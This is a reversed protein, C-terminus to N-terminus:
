GLPQMLNAPPSLPFGEPQLFLLHQDLREGRFLLGGRQRIARASTQLEARGREQSDGTHSHVLQLAENCGKLGYQLCLHGAAVGELM